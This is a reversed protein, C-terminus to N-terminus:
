VKELLTFLTFLVKINDDSIKGTELFESICIHSIYLYDYSLLLMFGIEEDPVMIYTLVKNICDKIEKCEKVKEYTEHVVKNIEEDDYEEIGLINLLEQRYLTQRVFEKDDDTIDDTELFVEPTNYTCIVKTNYM